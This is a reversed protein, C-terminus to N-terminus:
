EDVTSPTIKEGSRRRGSLCSQPHVLLQGCAAKIERGFRFRQTVEIGAQALIDKFKKIREETSPEFEPCTPNYAILNVMVLKGKCLDVLERALEDSDNVDKIMLYEFMVKRHTKNIYDDVARLVERLSYKKNVPMLKSRLEENPAHLSIALNIQMKENALKEIGEVVGSTSVSIHRAGINMGKQDNFIGAAKMVNEYNLFPEGMGMFVVNGLRPQANGPQNLYRAFFLVQAVIEDATLNRKLGMQGTACFACAMPCGVQTSVCVSNRAVGGLRYGAGVSADPSGWGVEGDPKGQKNEYRMLVTEIQLGDDLTVLAKTTKGDKSEFIEGKIELSCEAILKNRLDAPLFKAESWDEILDCFVAQKAQQLRYAPQGSLVATLKELSFM